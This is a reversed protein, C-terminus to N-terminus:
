YTFHVFIMLSVIPILAIFTLWFEAKWFLKKRIINYFSVIIFILNVMIALGYVAWKIDSLIYGEDKGFKLFFAILTFSSLLFFLYAVFENKKFEM